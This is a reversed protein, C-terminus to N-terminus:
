FNLFNPLQQRHLGLFYIEMIIYKKEFGKTTCSESVQSLPINKKYCFNNWIFIIEYSQFNM